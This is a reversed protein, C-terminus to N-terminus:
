KVMSEVTAYVAKLADDVKSADKGGSTASDPRGGGNGGAIPSVTKLINGAHVGAAVADKGAACIFNLKGDIDTSLVIVADPLESKVKDCIGRAVDIAIGKTSKTIVKIGHVITVEKMIEETQASAMKANLAEIQKYATHLERQVQVAKKAM